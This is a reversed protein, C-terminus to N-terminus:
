PPQWSVPIAEPTDGQSGPSFWRVSGPVGGRERGEM